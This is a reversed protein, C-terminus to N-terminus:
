PESFQTFMPKSSKMLNRIRWGLVLSEATFAGAIALVGVVAGNLNPLIITISGVAAVVMLRVGATIAIIGTRRMAALVGRFLASFGWFVAVLFILKVAPTVYQSLELTLGMVVNLIWGRM